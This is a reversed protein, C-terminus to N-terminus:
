HPSVFTAFLTLKIRAAHKQRILAADWAADALQGYLKTPARPFALM